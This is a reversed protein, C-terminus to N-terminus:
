RVDRNTLHDGVAARQLDNTLVVQGVAFDRYWSRDNPADNTWTPLATSLLQEHAELLEYLLQSIFERGRISLSFHNGNLLDRAVVGSTGALVRIRDILVDVIRSQGSYHADFIQRLRCYQIDSTQRRAHKYLDRLCISQALLKELVAVTKCPEVDATKNSATELQDSAFDGTSVHM